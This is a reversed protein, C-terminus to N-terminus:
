RKLRKVVDDRTVPREFDMLYIHFTGDRDSVYALNRGDPSFTPQISVGIDGTLKRENKGDADILYIEMDGDRASVYAITKGDPSVTPMYSDYQGSTLRKENKGEIDTTYLQHVKGRSSVFVVRKGDPFFTPSGDDTENTTIRKPTLTEPTIKSLNVGTFDLLYLELNGDANSEYIVQNGTPSAHPVRAGFEIPLIVRTTKGYIHTVNFGAFIPTSGSSQIVVKPERTTKPESSYFLYHPETLFAPSSDNFDPTFTVRQQIRGNLDMLYIEASDTRVSSFAIHAGSPSFTPAYNDSNGTTLQKTHYVDGVLATIEWVVAADTTGILVKRLVRFASDRDGFKLYTRALELRVATQKEPNTEYLQSAKRFQTAADNSRGLESYAQGLLEFVKPNDNHTELLPELLSVAHQPTGAQLLKESERLAVPERQCSLSFLCLLMTSSLLFRLHFVTM